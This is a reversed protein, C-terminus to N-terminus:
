GGIGALKRFDWSVIKEPTLRLWAHGGDAVFRGGGYKDGFIREAEATAPDLETETRPAPGVQEVAGLLEVGHLEGYGDGGDVIVAVRPDRKLNVWRQSKVITNLWLRSGDWAFWLASNHPSGDSGVSAVRCVRAVRLYADREEASM